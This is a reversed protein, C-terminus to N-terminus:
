QYYKKVFGSAETKGIMWQWLGSFVGCGYAIIQIHLVLMSLLGIHISGYMLSAQVLAFLSLVLALLLGAGLLMQAFASFISLVGVAFASVLILSPLFAIPKWFEPYLRGINVRAVGWNFIQKFFRRMSTRRKHYVFADPILGVRFGAAYIRISFDMDQGHRLKSMGGIEHFVEKKIGMNFSRPYFKTLSTKSGRSGGTGIFSTMTYNIAKLLPSFDPHYTDPGGFADLDDKSLHEDIQSLYHQPVMCDSDMFLFFEGGAKSMGHNRAAGPGQNQQRLYLLKYDSSYSTIFDQTGDTSGDDVIVVEFADTDFDMNDVSALLEQLEDLRNYTAVIISYKPM